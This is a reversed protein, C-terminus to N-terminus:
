STKIDQPQPQFRVPRYDIAIKLAQSHIYTNYLLSTEMRAVM